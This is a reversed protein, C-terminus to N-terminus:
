AGMSFDFFQYISADQDQCEMDSYETSQAIIESRRMLENTYQQLLSDDELGRSSFTYSFLALYDASPYPNDCLLSSPAPGHSYTSLNLAPVPPMDSVTDDFSNDYSSSTRPLTPISTTMFDHTYRQYAYQGTVHDLHPRFPSPPECEVAPMKEKRNRSAMQFEPIEYTDHAPHQFDDSIPFSLSSPSLSSSQIFRQAADRAVALYMGAPQTTPVYSSDPGPEPCTDLSRSWNGDSATSMKRKKEPSKSAGTIKRSSSPKPSAKMGPSYVYDPFKAYHQEKEMAALECFPKKEELSMNNWVKGAHKSLENQQGKGSARASSIYASRFFIFANRPRPIHDPDRRRTHTIRRSPVSSPANIGSSGPADYLSSTTNQDKQPTSPEVGHGPFQWGAKDYTTPIHEAPQTSHSNPAASLFMSM